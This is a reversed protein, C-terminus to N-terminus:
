EASFTINDLELGSKSSNWNALIIIRWQPVGFSFGKQKSMLGDKNIGKIIGKVRYVNDTNITISPNIYFFGGALHQRVKTGKAVDKSLPFSLTVVWNEGEKKVSKVGRAVINSNPLDSFDEKADAVVRYDSSRSRWSKGNNIVITTDGKKADAVVEAFTNKIFQYNQVPIPNGKADVGEFGFLLSPNKETEKIRKADMTLTYTKGEEPSFAKKSKLGSANNATVKSGEFKPRANFIQWMTSDFKTVEACLALSSLACVATFFKTINKM